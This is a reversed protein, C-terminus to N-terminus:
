TFREYFCNKRYTRFRTTKRYRPIIIGTEKLDEPNYEPPNYEAM